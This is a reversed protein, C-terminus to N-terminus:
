QCGVATQQWEDVRLWGVEGSRNEAERRVTGVEVGRGWKGVGDGCAGNRVRTVVDDWEGRVVHSFCFVDVMM